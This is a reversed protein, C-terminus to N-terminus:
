FYKRYWSARSMEPPQTQPIVVSDSTPLAPTPVTPGVQHTHTHTHTHSHETTDSEAVGQVTARWARRDMPNELCSYQLPHGNGGAPLVRESGPIWGVDGTDGAHAPPDKVM